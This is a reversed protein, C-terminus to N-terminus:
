RSDEGGGDYRFCEFDEDVLKEELHRVAPATPLESTGLAERSEWDQWAVWRSGM